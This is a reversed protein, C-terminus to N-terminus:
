PSLPSTSLCADELPPLSAPEVTAIRLRAAAPHDLFAQLLRSPLDGINLHTEVYELWPAINSHLCLLQYWM